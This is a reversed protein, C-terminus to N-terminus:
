ETCMFLIKLSLFTYLLFGLHLFMNNDNQACSYYKLLFYRIYSFDWTCFSIIIMRSTSANFEFIVISHLCSVLQLLVIIPTGSNDLPLTDSIRQMTIRKKYLALM